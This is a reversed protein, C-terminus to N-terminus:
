RRTIAQTVKRHFDEMQEIMDMAAAAPLDHGLAPMEILSAGRIARAAAEASAFPVLPDLRGHVFMTPAHIQGLDRLRNPTALVAAAQRMTGAPRYARRLQSEARRRALSDDFGDASGALVRRLEVAADVREEFDAGPPRLLADIVQPEPLSAPRGPPGSMAAVVSAILRPHDIALLQAIMGGLSLGVVHTRQVGLAHLLAAADAAMDGLLYPAAAGGLILGLLDPVGRDDFGSSLGSDRNDFRIVRYRRDVLEKCFEDDWSILQSGLGGVLLLPEGDSRGLIEYELEIDGLRARPM